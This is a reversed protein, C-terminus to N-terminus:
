YHFHNEGVFPFLESKQMKAYMPTLSLPQTESKLLNSIVTSWSVSSLM